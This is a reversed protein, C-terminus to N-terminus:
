RYRLTDIVIRPEVLPRNIEELERLQKEIYTEKIDCEEVSHGCKRCIPCPIRCIMKYYSCEKQPHTQCKEYRNRKM